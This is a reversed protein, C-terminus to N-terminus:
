GCRSPLWRWTEDGKQPWVAAEDEESVLSDGDNHREVYREIDVLLRGLGFRNAVWFGAPIPTMSPVSISGAYYRSGMLRFKTLQFEQRLKYFVFQWTPDSGISSSGLRLETLTLSLPTLLDLLDSGRGYHANGLTLAKLHSLSSFYSSGTSPFWMEDIKPNQGHDRSHFQIALDELGSCQQLVHTVDAPFSSGVNDTRGPYAGQDYHFSITRLTGLKDPLRDRMSEGDIDPLLSVNEQWRRLVNRGGGLVRLSRLTPNDCCVFACLLAATVQESTDQWTDPAPSWRLIEPFRLKQMFEEQLDNDLELNELKPFSSLVDSVLGIFSLFLPSLQTVGGSTFGLNRFIIQTVVDQFRNIDHSDKRSRLFGEAEGQTPNESRRRFPRLVLRQVKNQRASTDEAFPDM